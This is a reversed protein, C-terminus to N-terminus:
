VIVLYGLKVEDNILRVKKELIKLSAGRVLVYRCSGGFFEQSDRHYQHLLWNARVTYKSDLEEELLVNTIIRCTRPPPEFVHAWGSQLRAVMRRLNDKNWYAISLEESSNSTEEQESKWSPIWYTAKEDYLELWTQYEGDDLLSAERFLLAEIERISTSAVTVM